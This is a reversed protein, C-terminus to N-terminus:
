YCPSVLSETYVFAYYARIEQDRFSIDVCTANEPNYLVLKSGLLLLVEGKESRCLPTFVSSRSPKNILITFVKTWSETVGYEKMIWVDTHDDNEDCLLCLCGQFVYLTSELESESDEDCKPKKIQGYMGTALDLSGIYGCDERDLSWHLKGNVFRGYEELPYGGQFDGISRWTESKTSYVKVESGSPEGHDDVVCVVAAVKYDDNIEDYGFGWSIYYEFDWSTYREDEELRIGLDPVKKSKRTSPNWLIINSARVSICILGDCCGVVSVFNFPAEFPPYDIDVTDTAPAYLLSSLSCHKLYYNWDVCRLILVRQSNTSSNIFNLHAKIFRQSKILSLWSKSVCKFKMLSNMPLRLLIESILDHPLSSITLPDSDQSSASPLQSQSTAAISDSQHTCINNSINEM